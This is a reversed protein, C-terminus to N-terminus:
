YSLVSLKELVELGGDEIPILHLHFHPVETGIVSLGIRGVDLAREIAPALRQALAFVAQYYKDPVDVFYDIQIKPVILAHGKRVPSIDLFAIVLDDEYLKHCPIEGNIIKTFISDSMILSVRFFISLFTLLLNYM